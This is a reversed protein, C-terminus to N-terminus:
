RQPWDNWPPLPYTGDLAGLFKVISATDADSIQGHFKIADDLTAFYGNHGWPGSQVVNRLSPTRFAGHDQPSASLTETEKPGDWYAGSSTFPSSALTAYAGERGVDVPDGPWAPVNM